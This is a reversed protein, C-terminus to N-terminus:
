AVPKVPAATRKRERYAIELHFYFVLGRVKNKYPYVYAVLLPLKESSFRLNVFGKVLSAKILSPM